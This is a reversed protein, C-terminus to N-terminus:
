QHLRPEQLRPSEEKVRVNEMQTEGHPVQWECIKIRGQGLPIDGESAGETTQQCM